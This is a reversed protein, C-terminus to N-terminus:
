WSLTPPSTAMSFPMIFASSAASAVSRAAPPAPRSSRANMASCVVPNSVSTASM